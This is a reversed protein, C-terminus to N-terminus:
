TLILFSCCSLELIIILKSSTLRLKGHSNEVILLRSNEDNNLLITFFFFNVSMNEGMTSICHYYM